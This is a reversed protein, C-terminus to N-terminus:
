AATPMVTTLGVAPNHLGSTAELPIERAGGSPRWRPQERELPM